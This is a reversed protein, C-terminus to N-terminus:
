TLARHAQLARDIFTSTAGLYGAPDLLHDVEDASLVSTIAPDSLLGDRFSVGSRGARQVSTRAESRDMHRALALTVREAMLLGGSRDLNARMAESDVELGRITDGV